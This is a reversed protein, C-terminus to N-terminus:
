FVDERDPNRNKLDLAAVVRYAAIEPESDGQVRHCEARQRNRPTGPLM